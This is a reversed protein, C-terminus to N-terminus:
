SIFAEIVRDQVQNTATTGSPSATSLSVALTEFRPLIKKQQCTGAGPLARRQAPQEVQQGPVDGGSGSTTNSCSTSFTRL